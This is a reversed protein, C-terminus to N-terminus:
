KRPDDEDLELNAEATFQDNNVGRSTKAKISPYWQAFNDVPTKFKLQPKPLNVAHLLSADLPNNKNPLKTSLKSFIRILFNLVYPFYLKPRSYM